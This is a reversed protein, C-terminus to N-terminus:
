VLYLVLLLTQQYDSAQFIGYSTGYVGPANKFALVRIYISRIFM